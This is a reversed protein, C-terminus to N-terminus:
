LGSWMQLPGAMQVWQRLPVVCGQVCPQGQLPLGKGGETRKWEEWHPAFHSRLREFPVVSTSCWARFLNLKLTLKQFHCIVKFNLLTFVNRCLSQSHRNRFIRESTQLKGKLRSTLKSQKPVLFLCVSPSLPAFLSIILHLYHCVFQVQVLILENSKRWSDGEGGASGQCFEIKWDLLFYVFWRFNDCWVGSNYQM